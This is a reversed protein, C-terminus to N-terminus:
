REWDFASGLLGRLRQNHPRFHAVLRARTEPRMSDMTMKNLAEFRDPRWEPLGLFGLVETYTAQPDAFFDESRIFLFQDRRFRELWAEVQEAYAGRMLYSYRYWAHSVYGDDQLMRQLEGALREPEAILAEEFSLTEFGMRVSHWYHSYARDVPDRLMIVFRADPLITAARRAAHPCFLYDPSSEGVVYNSGTRRQVRHAQRISPFRSRYWGVGRDFNLDFFRLEKTLAHGVSPHRALYKYLSTTGCRAAGPILYNPLLRSGSTLRAWPDWIEKVLNRGPQPIVEWARELRDAIGTRAL